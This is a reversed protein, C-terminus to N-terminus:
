ERRNARGMHKSLFEAKRRQRDTLLTRGDEAARRAAFAAEERRIAAADALVAEDLENLDIITPIVTVTSGGVSSGYARNNFLRGAGPLRGLGPVGRSVSGSRGRNVGGLVGTGRDPVLVTTGVGFSRFTPLNIVQASSSQPLLTVAIGMALAMAAPARWTPPCLRAWSGRPKLHEEKSTQVAANSSGDTESHRPSLQYLSM